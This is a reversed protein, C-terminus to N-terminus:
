RRRWGGEHFSPARMHAMSSRGRFSEARSSAGNGSWGSHFRNGAFSNFHGGDGGGFARPASEADHRYADGNPGFGERAAGMPGYGGHKWTDGGDAPYRNAMANDYHRMAPSGPAWPGSGRPGYGDNRWTDGGDATYRNALHNDYRQMAPTGPRPPGYPHPGYPWPGHPGPGWPRYGNYAYRNGNWINVHNNIYTTHNYIVTGGGGGWNVNWANFGWHVFGGGGVNIGVNVGGGVFVGAGFTIVPSPAVYVPRYYYPVVYNVGYVVAPNYQPVYVVQPNVPQIVITQPSQQIVQIQPTSKLTGASQAQARMAQVAVMVDTPQNHYAQGLSSAWALNQAMNSLVSPFQTLAKVSPDWTQAEVASTLASGTLGNHASMWDNAMSVQDPFTAANLCQAVLADPYLAIPAVLSDLQNSTLNAPAPYASAPQPPATSTVDDASVQTAAVVLGVACALATLAHATSKSNM